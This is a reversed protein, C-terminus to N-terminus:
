GIRLGRVLMLVVQPHHGVQLSLRFPVVPLDDHRAAESRRLLTRQSWGGFDPSTGLRKKMEEKEELGIRGSSNVIKYRLQSLENILRCAPRTSAAACRGGSSRACRTAPPSPPSSLRIPIPRSGAPPSQPSAPRTPHPCCSDARRRSHPPRAHSPT